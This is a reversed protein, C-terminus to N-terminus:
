FFISHLQNFHRAEYGKVLICLFKQALPHVENKLGGWKQSVMQDRPLTLNWKQM